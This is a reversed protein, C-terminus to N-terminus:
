DSDTSDSQESSGGAKSKREEHADVGKQYMDLLKDVPEVITVVWDSPIPIVEDKSLPLWPTLQIQFPTNTNGSSDSKEGFLNVRCPYKLFYGIVKNEVTMEQLNAIVDEGSKLVILKVTM